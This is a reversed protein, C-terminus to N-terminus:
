VRGQTSALEALAGDTKRMEEQVGTWIGVKEGNAHYYDGDNKATPIEGDALNM